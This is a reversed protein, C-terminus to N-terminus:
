PIPSTNDVHLLSNLVFSDTKIFGSLHEFAVSSLFSGEVEEKETKWVWIDELGFIESTRKM